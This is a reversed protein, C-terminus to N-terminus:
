QQQQAVIREMRAGKTWPHFLPIKYSLIRLPGKRSKPEYSFYLFCEMPNAKYLEIGYSFFM